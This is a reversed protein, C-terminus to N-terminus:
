MLSDLGQRQSDCVENKVLGWIEKASYKNGVLTTANKGMLPEHNNNKKLFLDQMKVSVHKKEFAKNIHMESKVVEQIM